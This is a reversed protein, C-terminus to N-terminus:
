AGHHEEKLSCLCVTEYEGFPKGDLYTIEDERYRDGCQSCRIGEPERCQPDYLENSSTWDRM